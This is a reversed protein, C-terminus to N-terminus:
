DRVKPFDFESFYHSKRENYLKGPQLSFDYESQGNEICLPQYGFTHVRPM